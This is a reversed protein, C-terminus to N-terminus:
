RTLSLARDLLRQLEPFSLLRRAEAPTCWRTDRDEDALADGAYDMRYYSVEVRRGGREYLDRGVFCGAEGVVGAEEVAERAAADLSSEGAEVHGKPFLWSRGDSSRVVLVRPTRTDSRVIIAGGQSVPTDYKSM